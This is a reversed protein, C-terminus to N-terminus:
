TRLSFSSSRVIGCNDDVMDVGDVAASRSFRELM